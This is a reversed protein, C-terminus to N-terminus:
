AAAWCSIRATKGARGAGFNDRFFGTLRRRVWGRRPRTEGRFYCGRGDAFDRKSLRPLDTQGGAHRILLPVLPLPTLDGASALRAQQAQLWRHMDDPLRNGGGSDTGFHRRVLLAAQPSLSRIAGSDNNVVVVAHSPPGPERPRRLAALTLANRWAQTAHPCLLDLLARDQRSFDRRSRNVGIGISYTRQKYIIASQQFKIGLPIFYENCLTTGPWADAYCPDSLTIAHSLRPASKRNWLPHDFLHQKYVDGFRSWWAPVPKPIISRRGHGIEIENLSARDASILRSLGEPIL